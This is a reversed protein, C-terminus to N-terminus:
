SSGKANKFRCSALMIGGAIALMSFASPEPVTQITITGNPGLGSFLVANGLDDSLSTGGPPLLFVPVSELSIGVVTGPIAASDVLYRLRALGFTDGPNVLQGGTTAFDSGAAEIPLQNPEFGIGGTISFIYPAITSNDISTFVVSTTSALLVDVSFGGITVASASNNVLDIDFQGSTGPAATTTEVVLDLTGARCPAAGLVFLALAFSGTAIRLARSLDSIKRRCQHLM